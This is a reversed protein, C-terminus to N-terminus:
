PHCFHDTPQLTLLLNAGAQTVAVPNLSPSPQPQRHQNTPRISSLPKPTPRFFPTHYCLLLHHSSLHCDNNIEVWHQRLAKKQDATILSRVKTSQPKKYQYHTFSGPVLRQGHHNHFRKSHNEDKMTTATLVHWTTIIDKWPPHHLYLYRYIVIQIDKFKLITLQAINRTSTQLKLSEQAINSNTPCM